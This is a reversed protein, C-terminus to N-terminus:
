IFEEKYLTRDTIEGRLNETILQKAKSPYNGLLWALKIFATESTMDSGPIVGTKLIDRGPAYVNMQVRGFVTQTTMVVIVGKDVLAKVAALNKINPKALDNSDSVPIHGLGTGEIVIGKYDIYHLLQDPHFNPHSKILAVKDEMKTKITLKGTDKKPKNIFTIKETEPNVSAIPQANIPKFADRRSSHLKKSKTAPLIVSEKDESTAHMCIAVGTFDTKTIFQTAALLNSFADSSARDSSRQAGVLILPIPLNDFMFALAASTYHLTDTGHTLIIGDAKDKIAREVTKAMANYHAFRMDESAMNSILNSNINAHEGIEPFMDIIEEPTFRSVVAGTKYDVKSAITGGTHLITITKLKKNTPQKKPSPSPTDKHPELVTIKKVKNKNLGINYGSSLKLFVSQQDESPMILGEYTKTTTKIKVTDGPKAM